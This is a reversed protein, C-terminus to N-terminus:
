RRPPKYCKGELLLVGGAAKCRDIPDEEPLYCWGGQLRGGQRRCKRAAEGAGIECTGDEHYTGGQEVCDRIASGEAGTAALALGVVISLMWSRARRSRAM